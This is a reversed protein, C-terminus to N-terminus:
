KFFMPQMYYPNSVQQIYQNTANELKTQYESILVEIESNNTINQNAAVQLKLPLLMLAIVHNPISGNPLSSLTAAQTAYFSGVIPYYHNMAVLAQSLQNPNSYLLPLFGSQCITNMMIGAHRPAFLVLMDQQYQDYPKDRLIALYRQFEGRTEANMGSPRDRICM